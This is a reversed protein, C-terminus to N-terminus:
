VLFRIQCAYEMYVANGDLFVSGYKHRGGSASDLFVNSLLYDAFDSFNIMHLCVVEADGLVIIYGGDARHRGIWPTNAVMGLAMDLLLNKFKFVVEEYDLRVPLTAVLREFDPNKLINLLKKKESNNVGRSMATQVAFALLEPMLSDIKRLNGEFVPSRYSDYHLSGGLDQVKAVRRLYKSNGKIENVTQIRASIDETEGGWAM